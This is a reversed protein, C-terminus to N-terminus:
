VISFAIPVSLKLRSQVGASGHEVYINRSWKIADSVCKRTVSKPRYAPIGLSSHVKNNKPDWSGLSGVVIAAASSTFGRGQLHAVLQQYKDEKYRRAVDLADYRKELPCCRSHPRETSGRPIIM